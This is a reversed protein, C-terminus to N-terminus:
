QRRNWQAIVKDRRDNTIIFQCENCKLRFQGDPIILGVWEPQKGCFPCSLLGSVDPLVCNKNVQM